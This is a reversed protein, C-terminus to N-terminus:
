RRPKPTALRTRGYNWVAISIRHLSWGAFPNSAGCVSGGAPGPGPAPRTPGTEAPRGSSREFQPMLPCADYPSRIARGSRASLRAAATAPAHITDAEHVSFPRPLHARPPVTRSVSRQSRGGRPLCPWPDPGGRSSPPLQRLPTAVARSQPSRTVIRALACLKPPWATEPCTM